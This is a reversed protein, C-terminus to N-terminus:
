SADYSMSAGRIPTESSPFMWVYASCSAAGGGWSLDFGGALGDKVPLYQAYVVEGDQRCKNAVWLKNVDRAKVGDTGIRFSVSDGAAPWSSDTRAAANAFAITVGGRVGALVSGAGAPARGLALSAAFALSAVIAAILLAQLVVGTVHRTGSTIYSTARM